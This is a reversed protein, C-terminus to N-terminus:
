RSLSPVNVSAHRPHIVEHILSPIRHGVNGNQRRFSFASWYVSPPPVPLRLPSLIGRSVTRTRSGGRPGYPAHHQSRPSVRQFCIHITM